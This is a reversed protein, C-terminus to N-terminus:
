TSTRTAELSIPLKTEAPMAPLEFVWGNDLKVWGGWLDPRQQEVVFAELDKKAIYVSLKGDQRRLMIKM